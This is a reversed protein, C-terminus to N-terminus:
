GNPAKASFRLAIVAAIALSVGTYMLHEVLRDQLPLPSQSGSRWQAPDFIWALADLLFNM